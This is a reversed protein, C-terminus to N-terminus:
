MKGSVTFISRNSRSHVIWVLGLSFELFRRDTTLAFRDVVFAPPCPIRGWRLTMDEHARGTFPYPVTRRASHQQEGTLKDSQMPVLNEPEGAIFLGTDFGFMRQSPNDLDLILGFNWDPYDDGRGVGMERPANALSQMVSMVACEGTAILFTFVQEPRVPLALRRHSGPL